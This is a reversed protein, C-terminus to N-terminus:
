NSNISQYQIEKIKEWVDSQQDSHCYYDYESTDYIM